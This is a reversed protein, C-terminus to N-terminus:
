WTTQSAQPLSETLGMHRTMAAGPVETLVLGHLAQDLLWDGFAGHEFSVGGPAADVIVQGDILVESVIAVFRDRRMHLDFTTQGGELVEVEGTEVATTGLQRKAQGVAAPEIEPDNAFVPPNM